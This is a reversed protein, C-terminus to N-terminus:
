ILYINDQVLDKVPWVSVVQEAGKHSILVTLINELSAISDEATTNSSGLFNSLFIFDDQQNPKVFGDKSTFFILTSKLNLDRATNVQSTTTCVM